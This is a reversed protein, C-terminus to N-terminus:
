WVVEASRRTAVVFLVAASLLLAQVVIFASEYGGTLDHLWGGVWSGVAAGLSVFLIMVGRISGYHRGPFRDALAAYCTPGSVGLGWGGLVGFLLPVFTSDPNRVMNLLFM